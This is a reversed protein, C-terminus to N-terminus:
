PKPVPDPRKVLDRLIRGGVVHDDIIRLADGPTVGSYFATGPGAAVPAVAVLFRSENPLIPRVLCNPAQRCRGFCSQWTLEVRDELHRVRLAETFATHIARSGMREGCEPGRCIIIRYRRVSV